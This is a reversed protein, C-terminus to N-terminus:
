PHREVDLGEPTGSNLNKSFKQKMREGTICFATPFWKKLTEDRNEMMQVLAKASSFCLVMGSGQFSAAIYLGEEDPLLGIFPLQDVSFGMIGTWAKRLRGEGDDGGWNSDFYDATCNRLFDMIVPDATTDDTTGFEYLGRHLAKTLGGGIAIDGAFKSGPPRCIMYEYGEEHIFSYTGSRFVQSIQNGPRQATMHGRWPVIVGQLRPYLYATYGNTALLVKEAHIDGRPTQVIWRVKGEHHKRLKLAPTETQLNLGKELALKLIGIVLKYANLSGARYSVAGVAGKTWFNKEAEITDWFIYRGAPDHNGLVRQIESVAEKAQNWQGEDYIIDVTDGEWSECDIDHDRAFAHVAEMCEHEFKVIRAAEDEGHMRLNDLFTRYSAHKTHGGNRGSAGSSATRAELMLVSSPRIQDLINYALCAGTIGSGIIVISVASPLVASTRLNSILAPPDQWYSETPHPRPLSPPIAARQDM